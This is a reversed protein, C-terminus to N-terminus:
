PIKLVTGPKIANSQLHNRKKLVEMEVGFRRSIKWLSDGEQVIYLRDKPKEKPKSAVTPAAAPKVQDKVVSISEAKQTSKVAQQKVESTSVQAIVRDPAFRKLSTQYNWDKPIPEGAYEYLRLSAQQWISSNRPSTLAALAFRESEPTKSSLLQLLAIIQADDLKKIAFDGEIELLLYAATQSGQKVYDLLFKQRRADSLDNVQRQQEVFQRLTDWSGELVGELLRQKHIPVSQRSFLLEVSLFEPSLVFAEVASPDINQEAKQQQLLLFLGHSTMPWKETKAFSSIVEFQQNTLGPYVTLYDWGGTSPNKWKLLRKQPLKVEPALARQIDFHHTSVMTGLVLDRESYGDEILRGSNLKAILQYFPFTKLSAIVETCGRCDALPAQQQESTAPKLEFYPTPPRERIAWYSLLALSGINFAISIFLAQTLRRITQSSKGIM